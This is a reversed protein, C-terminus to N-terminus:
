ECESPKNNDEKEKIAAKIIKIKAELDKAELSKGYIGILIDKIQQNTAAENDNNKKFEILSNSFKENWGAKPNQTHKIFRYANAMAELTLNHLKKNNSASNILSLYFGVPNEKNKDLGKKIKDLGNKEHNIAAVFLGTLLFQRAEHNVGNPSIIKLTKELHEYYSQLPIGGNPNKKILDNFLDLNNNHLSNITFAMNSTEFIDFYEMLQKFSEKLNEVPPAFNGIDLFKYPNKTKDKNSIDLLEITSEKIKQKLVKSKNQETFNYAESNIEKLRKIYDDAQYYKGSAVDLINCNM